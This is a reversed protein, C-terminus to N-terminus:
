DEEQPTPHADNTPVVRNDIVISTGNKLKMQGSTVVLDGPDVGRLIAVQDGRKPGLTVFRQEVTLHSAGGANKVLFITAGYPNYSVATQPLTLYRRVGGSAVSVRVFMGPFLHHRPNDILAEVAFNRSSADVRPDIATVRGTFREGPYADSALSVTEGKSVRALEEQPLRFDVYIPDLTQLTVVKDGPNLYQGPNITTIGLRGAFPARLTKKAVIAAQAAAQARKSKLDAEDADIQAKAIAQVAYQARDREYVVAALDAAAELANLQARDADSNLEVLVQGAVVEDGSRFRVSRVLGAVETTIDVGRLARLSGVADLTPQWDSYEAPAASVTELPAANQTLAKRIMYSKFLNFGVLLGLLAGAALLVVIFRRRMRSRPAAAERREIPGAPKGTRTLEEVSEVSM